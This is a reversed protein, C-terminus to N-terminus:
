YIYTGCRQFILGFETELEIQWDDGKFLLHIVHNDHEQIECLCLDMNCNQWNCINLKQISNDSLEIVVVNYNNDWVGWKQVEIFPKDFVHLQLNIGREKLNLQGICFKEFGKPYLQKLFVNSHIIDILRTTM